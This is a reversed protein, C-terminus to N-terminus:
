QHIVAGPRHGALPLNKRILRGARASGTVTGHRLRSSCFRRPRGSPKQWVTRSRDARHDLRRSLASECRTPKHRDDPHRGRAMFRNSRDDPRIASSMSSCRPSVCHKRLTVAIFWTQSTM